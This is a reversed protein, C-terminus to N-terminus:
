FRCLSLSSTCPMIRYGQDEGFKNKKDKNVVYYFTQGNAGWNQPCLDSIESTRRSHESVIQADDENDIYTKEIKMTSRTYPNWGYSVNCPKITHAALSNKTGLIDIDIKYNLVHDHM